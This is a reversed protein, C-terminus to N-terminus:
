QVMQEFFMTLKVQLPKPGKQIYESVANVALGTGIFIAFLVPPLIMGKMGKENLVV